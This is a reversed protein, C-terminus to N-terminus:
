RFFGCSVVEGPRFAVGELLPVPKASPMRRSLFFLNREKEFVVLMGAFERNVRSVM